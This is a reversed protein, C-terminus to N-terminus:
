GIKQEFAFDTRPLTDIINLPETPTKKNGTKGKEKRKRLSKLCLSSGIM